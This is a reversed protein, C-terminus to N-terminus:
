AQVGTTEATTNDHLEGGLDGGREGDLEDALERRAQELDDASPVISHWTHTGEALSLGKGKVTKAIIVTPRGDIDGSRSLRLAHGIQDFDHGDIELVRWGFAKFVAAVDIGAWPDRRDGRDAGRTSDDSPLGYQQLGNRDLIATLNTLRYRSAVQAAEWM